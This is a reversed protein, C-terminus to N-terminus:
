KINYLKAATFKSPLARVTTVPLMFVSFGFCETRWAPVSPQFKFGSVKPNGAPFRGVFSMETDTAKRNGCVRARSIIFGIGNFPGGIFRIANVHYNERFKWRYRERKKEKM